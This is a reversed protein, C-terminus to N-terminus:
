MDMYGLSLGNARAWKLIEIHGNKAALACTHIDWYCGNARAWKLIELYGEKAATECIHNLSLLNLKICKSKFGKSTFCLLTLTLEDCFKLIVEIVDDNIQDM